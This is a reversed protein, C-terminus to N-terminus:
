DDYLDSMLFLLAFIAMFVILSVVFSDDACRLSAYMGGMNLGLPEM